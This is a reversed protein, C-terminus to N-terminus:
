TMMRVLASAKETTPPLHVPLDRTCPWAAGDHYSPVSTHTRNRCYYPNQAADLAFFYNQYGHRRETVEEDRPHTNLVM